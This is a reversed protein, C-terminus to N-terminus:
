KNENNKGESEKNKRRIPEPLEPKFKFTAGRMILHLLLEKTSLDMREVVYNDLNVMEKLVTVCNQMEKTMHKENKKLESYATTLIKNVSMTNKAKSMFLINTRQRAPKKCIIDNTDTALQTPHGLLYNVEILIRNRNRFKRKHIAFNLKNKADDWVHTNFEWEDKIKLSQKEQTHAVKRLTILKDLIDEKKKLEKM